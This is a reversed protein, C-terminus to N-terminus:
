RALKLSIPISPPQGMMIDPPIATRSVSPCSPSIITRRISQSEFTVNPHTEMYKNLIEDFADLKVQNGMYHMISITIPEEAVALSTMSLLMVLVILLSGLKKM